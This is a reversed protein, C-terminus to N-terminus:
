AITESTEPEGGAARKLIIMDRLLVGGEVIPHNYNDIFFDKM